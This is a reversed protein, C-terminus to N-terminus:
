LKIKIKRACSASSNGHDSVINDNSSSVPYKDHKVLEDTIMASAVTGFYRFFPGVCKLTPDM